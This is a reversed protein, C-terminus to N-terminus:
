CSQEIAKKRYNANNFIKKVFFNIVEMRAFSYEMLFFNHKSNNSIRVLMKNYQGAVIKKHFSGAKSKQEFQEGCSVCFFDAVPKNNKYKQLKCGCNPCFIEKQVWFETFLRARQSRSKYSADDFRLISLDMSMM